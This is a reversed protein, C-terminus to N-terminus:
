MTLEDGIHGLGIDGALENVTGFRHSYSAGAVGIPNLHATWPSYLLESFNTESALGGFVMVADAAGRSGALAPTTLGMALLIASATKFAPQCM